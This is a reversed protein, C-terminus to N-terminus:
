ASTTPGAPCTGGAGGYLIVSAESMDCGLPEPPLLPEWSVGDVSGEVHRQMGDFRLQMWSLEADYDWDGDATQVVDDALVSVWSSCGMPTWLQFTLRINSAHPPVEGLEVRVYAEESFDFAEASTVGADMGAEADDIVSFRLTSGSEEVATSPHAWPYWQPGVAADSFDDFLLTDCAPTPEGGSSEGGGEEGGGSSGDGWGLDPLLPQGEDGSEDWGGTTTMDDGGDLSPGAGSEGTGTQGGGDTSTGVSELPVCTAALGDAAHRGYRQFSPCVEDEFSCWGSAQCVGDRAADVCQRDRTCAFAGDTCAALVMGAGAGLCSILLWGRLRSGERRGEMM